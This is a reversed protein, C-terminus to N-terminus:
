FHGLRQADHLHRAPTIVLRLLKEQLATGGRSALIEFISSRLEPDDSGAGITYLEDITEASLPEYKSLGEVAARAIPYSDPGGVYHSLNSIKDHALKLLV